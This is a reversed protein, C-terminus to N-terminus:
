IANVIYVYFLKSYDCCGVHSDYKKLMITAKIAIIYLIFINMLFNLDHDSKQPM